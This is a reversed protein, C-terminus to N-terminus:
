LYSSHRIHIISSKIQFTLDHTDWYFGLHFWYNSTWTVGPMRVKILFHDKNRGTNTGTSNVESCDFALLTLALGAMNGSLIYTSGASSSLLHSHSYIALDLPKNTYPDINQSGEFYSKPIIIHAENPSGSTNKVSVWRSSYLV